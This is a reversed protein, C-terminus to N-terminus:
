FSYNMGFHLRYDGRQTQPGTVFARALDLRLQLGRAGFRLGAGAGGLRCRSGRGVMCSEGQRREVWGADAFLLGRTEGGSLGFLSEAGNPSLLEVSLQGGADGSVEREAYARVSQAGGIGMQEGPILPGSAAQGSGRLSLGLGTEGLGFSGSAAIRLMTYRQRAGPRIAEFDAASAHSGGIGLNHLLGISFGLRYEGAMQGTYSVSLPQSSVSAGASGCAGQPLGEISCQNLYDRRELGLILRQDMNGLRPLYSSVRLGTIRGRGAFALEGAATDSRGADVDSYATYADLAMAQAYFPVRYGASFAAVRSPKEVSTQADLSLVHDRGWVDGHQWGLGVRGRGTRADGTNDARLSFRQVPVEVVTVKAAVSGAKGGPQLLVQVAKAPSENAMQIQADIRRVQLAEGIRLAPLSALINERTFHQNDTIDIRELRGEVVRVRLVGDALGQEPLFAVVAGYGAERYLQQVAAAADRMQKLSTSGKYAALTQEILSPPLLSNGQVEFRQVPPGAVLEFAQVTAACTMMLGVCLRARGLRDSLSLNM